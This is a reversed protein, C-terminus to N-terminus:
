TIQSGYANFSVGTVDTYVRLVDTTAMTIGLTLTVTDNPALPYNYILYQKNADAAGAISHAIRINKTSSTRNCAVVTSVVASTSGPVTYLDTLTATAPDSGGGLNKLTEAM